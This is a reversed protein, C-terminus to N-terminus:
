GGRLAKLAKVKLLTMLSEFEAMQALTEREEPTLTGASQKELLEGAFAQADPSAKFALIEQPSAKEVLYDLFQDYLPLLRSSAM